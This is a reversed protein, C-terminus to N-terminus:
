LVLNVEAQKDIEEAEDRISDRVQLYERM